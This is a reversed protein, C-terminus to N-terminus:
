PVVVRSVILVTDKLSVDFLSYIKSSDPIKSEDERRRKKERGGKEGRRTGTGGM